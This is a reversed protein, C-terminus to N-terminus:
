SDRPSPSTYLLCTKGRDSLGLSSLFLDLWEVGGHNTPLISGGSRVFTLPFDGRVKLFQNIFTAGLQPTEGKPYGPRVLESFLGFVDKGHGISYVEKASLRGLSVGSVFQSLDWDM